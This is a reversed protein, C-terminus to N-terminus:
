ECRSWLVCGAPGIRGSGNLSLQHSSTSAAPGARRRGCRHGHGARPALAFTYPVGATADAPNADTWVLLTFSNGFANQGSLAGSTYKLNRPIAYEQSTTSVAYPSIAAGASLSDGTNFNTSTERFPFDNVFAFDSGVAGLGYIDYGTSLSNDADFSLYVSPGGNPVTAANYTLRVYLNTNDNALQVTSLDIPSGDVADTTLVPVSAWDSFAGDVNITAYTGARAVGSMATLSAAIALWYRRISSSHLAM